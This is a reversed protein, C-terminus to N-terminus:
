CERRDPQEKELRAEAKRQKRLDATRPEVSWFRELADVMMLLGQRLQLALERDTMM